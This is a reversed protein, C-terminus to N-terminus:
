NVHRALESETLSKFLYANQLWECSLNFYSINFLENNLSNKISEIVSEGKNSLWEIIGVTKTLTVGLLMLGATRVIVRLYPLARETRTDM